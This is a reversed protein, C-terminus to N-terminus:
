SPFLPLRSATLRWPSPPSEGTETTDGSVASTTIGAIDDDTVGITDTGAVYGDASATITVMQVGDVIADEVADIPFVATAQGWPITVTGPVTAESPDESTLKVSPKEFIYAAGSIDGM